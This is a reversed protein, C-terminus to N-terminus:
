KINILVTGPEIVTGQLMKGSDINVVFITDGIRGNQRAKGLARVEMTGTKAVIYVQEGQHVVVPSAILKETIINGRKIGTLAVMDKIQEMSTLADRNFQTIERNEITLIDYSFFEGSKIDKKAVIVDLYVKLNLTVCVKKVCTKNVLIEIFVSINGISSTNQSCSPFLTIEGPPLVSDPVQSQATIKVQEEKWPLQGKLFEVAKNVLIDGSIIQSKGTVKIYEPIKLEISNVDFGKHQLLMKIQSG